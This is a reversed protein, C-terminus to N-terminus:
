HLLPMADAVAARRRLWRRRRPPHRLSPQVGHRRLDQLDDQMARLLRHDVGVVLVDVIWEGPISETLRRITQMVTGLVAHDLTGAYTYLWQPGSPVVRWLRLSIRSHHRPIEAFTLPMQESPGQGRPRLLASALRGAGIRPAPATAVTVTGM